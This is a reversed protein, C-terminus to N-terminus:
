KKIPQGMKDIDVEIERGKKIIIVSTDKILTRRSKFKIEIKVPYDLQEFLNVGKINEKPFIVRRYAVNPVLIESNVKKDLFNYPTEALIVKDDNIKSEDWIIEIITDTKNQIIIEIGIDGAYEASIFALRSDKERTIEVQNVIRRQVSSCNIFISAIVLKLLLNKLYIKKNM